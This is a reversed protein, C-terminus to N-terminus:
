ASQEDALSQLTFSGFPHWEPTLSQVKGDPLLRHHAVTPLVSADVPHRARPNHWISLGECWTENYGPDNM